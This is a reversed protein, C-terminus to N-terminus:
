RILGGRKLANVYNTVQVKAREVDDCTALYEGLMVHKVELPKGLMALRVQQWVRDDVAILIEARTYSGFVFHQWRRADSWDVGRM